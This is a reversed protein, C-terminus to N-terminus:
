VEGVDDLWEEVGVAGLRNAVWSARCDCLQCESVDSKRETIMADEEKSVFETADYFRGDYEDADGAACTHDFDDDPEPKIPTTAETSNTFGARTPHSLHNKNTPVYLYDYGYGNDYGNGNPALSNSHTSSEQKVGSQNDKPKSKLTARPKAAGRKARKAKTDAFIDEDERKVKTDAFIDEDGDGDEVEDERKCKREEKMVKKALTAVSARKRKPTPTAAPGASPSSVNSGAKKRAPTNPAADGKEFAQKM